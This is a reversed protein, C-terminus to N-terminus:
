LEEFTGMKYIEGKDMMVIKDALSLFDISHTILIRTKNKLYKLLCNMFVNRRVRVDLASIPDDM